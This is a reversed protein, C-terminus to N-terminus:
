IKFLKEAASRTSGRQEVAQECRLIEAKLSKIREELDAISLTYLDQKGLKGLTFDPKETLPEEEM